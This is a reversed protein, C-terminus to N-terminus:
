ALLNAVDYITAVSIDISPDKKDSWVLCTKMGVKKAPTIDVDIRDGIMLHQDPSAGTKGVIYRFGKLNPKTDGVTEPTVIESFFRESIGLAHLAEIIKRRIGNVFLYHKYVRLSELLKKLRDDKKLYKTRDYYQEMETAAQTVSIGSLKAAVQTASKFKKKFIAGFEQILKERPWGTNDEIVRYEAERVDHKLAPILRYFTGDFDWVLIKIKRFRVDM